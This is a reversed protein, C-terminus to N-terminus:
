PHADWPFQRNLHDKANQAGDLHESETSIDTTRLISPQTHEDQDTEHISTHSRPLGAEPGLTDMTILQSDDLEEYMRPKARRNGAGSGPPFTKGSRPSRGTWNQTSISSKLRGLGAIAKPATPVSFVLIGCTTEAVACLGVTSFNYSIDASFSYHVTAVLRFAAAFCALLGVAFVAAVGIRRGTSAVLTWIISQPLLLILLDIFLNVSASVIDIAHGDICQGPVTLRNWIKEHPICTLNITFLGAVNSLGNVWLLAHSIWFFTNRTGKPVFIRLWELIIAAKVLAVTVAFFNTGIMLLRLMRPLDRLRIDWMHVFLGLYNCEVLIISLFVLYLIYAVAMVYDSLYQRKLYTFTAYARLFLFVTSLSLCLGITAYSVGNSNPANNFNSITNTPPALSPGDLLEQQEAPTMSNFDVEAM